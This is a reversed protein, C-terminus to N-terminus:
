ASKLNKSPVPPELGPDTSFTQFSGVAADENDYMEFITNLHTIELIHSIHKNVHLLKLRGGQRVARTYSSVLEGIGAASDMLTVEALNLLIHRAGSELAGAVTDRIHGPADALTFRGSLDVIAVDGVRRVKTTCNM